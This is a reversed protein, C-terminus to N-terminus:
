IDWQQYVATLSLSNVLGHGIVLPWLNRKFLLFLTGLTLGIFGTIILGQLGQYYVHVLGFSLAPFFVSLTRQFKVGNFLTLMRTILFGRFFMEECLGSSVWILGLWLLYMNLNGPVDALREAIGANDKVLDLGLLEGTKAVTVGTLIIAAATLLCKPLIMLRSKLGGPVAFGIGALGEGRRHLYIALILMSGILTIPGSFKWTLPDVLLKSIVVLCGFGIVEKLALSKDASLM